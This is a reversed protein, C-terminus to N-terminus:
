VAKASFYNSGSVVSLFGLYRYLYGVREENVENTYVTGEKTEEVGWGEPINTLTQDVNIEPLIGIGTRNVKADLKAM